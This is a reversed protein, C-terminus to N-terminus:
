WFRDITDALQTLKGHFFHSCGPIVVIPLSQPRAWDLVDALASVEDEEGHVVLTNAQVPMVPFRRVAPGALILREAAVRRAAESSVYTGFSFGGLALPLEGHVRRAHEVVALADDTEGRGEDFQGDSAGVGRCNPLYVAYGRRSITKGMIQVVKNTNSGGQTPNPHILVAVGQLEGVPPLYITELQGAPGAILEVNPPKIM